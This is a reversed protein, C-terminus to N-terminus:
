PQIYTTLSNNSNVLFVVWFTDFGRKKVSNHECKVSRFYGTLCLAVEVLLLSRVPESTRVFIPYDAMLLSYRTLLLLQSSIYFPFNIVPKENDFELLVRSQCEIPQTILSLALALDPACILSCIDPGSIENYSFWNQATPQPRPQVTPFFPRPRNHAVKPAWKKM